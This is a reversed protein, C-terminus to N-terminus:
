SAKSQGVRSQIQEWHPKFAEIKVKAAAKDQDGFEALLDDLNCVLGPVGKTFEAGDLFV